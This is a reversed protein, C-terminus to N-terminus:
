SIGSLESKFEKELWRAIQYFKLRKSDNLNVIKHYFISPSLGLSDMIFIADNIGNCIEKGAVGLACCRNGNGYLNLYIQKYKRSRLAVIWKRMNEVNINM